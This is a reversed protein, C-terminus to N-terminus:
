SKEEDPLPSVYPRPQVPVGGSPNAYMRMLTRSMADRKSDSTPYLDQGPLMDRFMPSRQRTAQRVEDLAENTSKGAWRKLANGAAPLMPGLLWSLDGAGAFQGAGVGLGTTLTGALGGGGGLMNGAFRAANTPLSGEPVDELMAEESKNFAKLKKANLIASTIRSRLSNDLNQGSNASDTRFKAARQIAALDADRLGASANARGEGYLGGGYTALLNKELTQAPTAGAVIAEPSPREILDNVAQFAEGVGRQNEGPAGFKNAINERLAILNNPGLSITATPDDSHPTFQRLRRITKYLGPADEEFVGGKFDGGGSVLRNELADAFTTGVYHPNYPIPLGRYTNIQGVGKGVLEPGSPTVALTMDKPRMTAGPLFRDGSRIMPNVPNFAGAFNRAEEMIPGARPDNVAPDFTSPMPTEGSAVRGPLTFAQKIAGIPGANIPDFHINGKADRTLPLVSGRYVIPPPPEEKAYGTAPLGVAFDGM